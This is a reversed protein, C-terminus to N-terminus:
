DATAVVRRGGRCGFKVVDCVDGKCGGVGPQVRRGDGQEAEWKWWGDECHSYGSVEGIGQDLSGDSYPQDDAVIVEFPVDLTRAYVFALCESLIDGLYHPIIISVLPKNNKDMESDRAERSGEEM